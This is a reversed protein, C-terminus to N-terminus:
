ILNGGFDPHDVFGPRAGQNRLMGEFETDRSNSELLRHGDGGIEAGCEPCRSTQMAGGCEGIVFPHGNPCKYFHGTTAFGLANLVDQKEQLSVPQYRGGRKAFEKLEKLDAIFQDVNAACNDNFWKREEQLNEFNGAPRSCIYDKRRTEVNALLEVEESVISNLIAEREKTDSLTLGSLNVLTWFRFHEFQSRVIYASCRAAQRPASSAQAMILAKKSDATCSRYVLDVFSIWLQRHAKQDDDLNLVTLAEIRAFGIQSLMFRLKLLRFYAEIQYRVDAKPRLQGIKELAREFALPQPTEIDQSSGNANAGLEFRYLTSLAGEYAKIHAGRTCAIVETQRYLNLIDKVINEWAKAEAASFGHLSHMAGRMLLDVSFPATIKQLSEEARNKSPDRTHTPGGEIKAAQTKKDNVLFSLAEFPENLAQLSRSMTNAVNQEIIDLRARKTVRGYRLASIPGRCTPCVPPTQYETPPIKTSIFQGMPDIEYYLSMSCHGDLTEVTFIHGCELTIIRESIDESNVDLDELRRQMIFDCIDQKKESPLCQLCTPLVPIVVHSSKQVRSMVHFVFVFRDVLLPASRMYADGAVPSWVHRVPHQVRSTANKTSGGEPAYASLEGPRSVTQVEEPHRICQIPFGRGIQDRAELEDIITSWTSNKKLNSANGLIYLGHKARSLAVNIRNSSKLFGISASQTDYDGTNRVLSVIVIKAEQGQFIDVTGLRIHKAVMVEEFSTLADSGEMGQKVLQEEDREDVSVSIKLDKLAQRVKQLQGLYACLVAIDGPGSYEGQKLFYLVLDRIMKVEYTNFRSVSDELGSERNTHSLFYVDKSMGQVRPYKTVLDHDELSIFHSITPRMRRQINIQTMPLGGDALREMLSRDFKFLNNGQESDMSLAILGFYSTSLMSFPFSSCFTALTPRLQQPDGICILHQVSPVLATIVHAELVQGAEEVMIVRPGISALLSTLKAAGTTTCGILEVKSLLRRRNEDKLDNFEQCVDKYRQRLNTYTQLHSEYALKRIEGEWFEAIKRREVASMHWVSYNDLLAGLQRNGNPCPPRNNGFGLDSFFQKVDESDEVEVIDAIPMSKQKKKGRNENGANMTTTRPTIFSIDTGDKWFGYYTKSLNEAVVSKHKGKVQTWEGNEDEDAWLKQCLTSIWFPPTLLSDAHEPHHIELFDDIQSASIVPLQISQMVKCIEEETRKVEAFLKGVSRGLESKGAIKELKDLTYESIREDSSRSGLRAIKETIKEDLVSTLMHDLAHNTYAILIIPQIKSKILVDLIKRGIYSKGTGPPGQILSVERTLSSIMAEVQSPDLCSGRILHQRAEEVERPNRIDLTDIPRRGKDFLSGIKYKFQPSKTYMPPHVQTNNLSSSTHGIYRAFPIETPEVTQLRELFPRSAEFVVSNDILFAYSNKGKCIKERKLARLEIIPDFFSVRIQIRDPSDKSSEAVDDSSSAIAGLYVELKNRSVIVLAVLSGGLRRSNKWYTQRKNPEPDRASGPPSDLILGVTLERREANVPAFEVNTYVFFFLSDFGTTKYPGGRKALVTELKTPDTGKGDGGGHQEWIKTLDEHIARISSRIPSIFEERLLRFQIDLHRQMSNEQLHHPAEPRFFPLYPPLVCLLEEQTPAVRINSIEVHDNDHRKGGPRLTGPPDYTQAFQLINAQRRQAATMSTQPVLPKKLKVDNETERQIITSLRDIDERIRDLLHRRVSPTTNIINDKFVPNIGSVHQAWVDFWDVISNVLPVLKTQNRIASKFRSIYEILVTSLTQFVLAGDLSTSTGIMSRNRDEWSKNSIMSGLCARLVDNIADFNDEIVTYLRNVNKQWATKLVLNSSLYELIPFYGTQFSLAQSTLGITESVPKFRLVEGIRIIGDNKVLLLDLFSQANDIDWAKNRDNISAIIKVFGQVRKVNEFHYTDKLFPKIHNHAESPSMPFTQGTRIGTTTIVGEVSFFDPLDDAVPASTDAYSPRIHQFKCDFSMTCSGQRWYLRCANRPLDPPIETASKPAVGGHGYSRRQSSEVPSNNVSGHLFKCNNGFPCGKSSTFRKCLSKQSNAM